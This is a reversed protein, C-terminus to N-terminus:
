RKVSMIHNIDFTNKLSLQVFVHNIIRTLHTKSPHEIPCENSWTFGGRSLDRSEGLPESAVNDLWISGKTAGM